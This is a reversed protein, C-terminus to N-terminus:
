FLFLLTLWVTLIKPNTWQSKFLMFMIVMMIVTMVMMMFLLTVRVFYMIVTFVLYCFFLM